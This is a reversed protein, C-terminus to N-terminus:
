VNKRMYREVADRVIPPLYLGELDMRALEAALLEIIEQTSLKKDIIILRRDHVRCLGGRGKVDEFSLNALEVTIGLREFAEVLGRLILANREPDSLSM